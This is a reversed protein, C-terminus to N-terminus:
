KIAAGNDVCASGESSNSLTGEGIQRWVDAFQAATFSNAPTIPILLINYSGEEPDCSRGGVANLQPVSVFFGNDSGALFIDAGLYVDVEHLTNTTSFVHTRLRFFNEGRVYTVTLNVRVDSDPAALAVSVVHPDARTGSGFVTSLSVPEWATFTGLASTATTGHAGFDPAHLVGDIYAFIGMDALDTTTPFVQGVGPVATNYIQFSGDAGVNIKLPTANITTFSTQAHAGAAVFILAAAFVSMRVRQMMCRWVRSAFSEM